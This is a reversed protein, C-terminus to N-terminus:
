IEVRLAAAPPMQAARIAPFITALFTLFTGLLTSFGILKLSGLWFITTMHSMEGGLLHIITVFFWGILSGAVSAILGLLCSEIFFLKVIFSDLAGLCKMTGIEKYRETVAMLMANTIGVTCVVLAMISLWLQRNQAAIVTSVSGTAPFLMGTRVAVFFAIGLFIGSATILSRWFRIRISELSIQFAKSFPLSIQRHIKRDKHNINTSM